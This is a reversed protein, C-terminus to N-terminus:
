PIKKGSFVNKTKGELDTGTQLFEIMQEIANMAPTGALAMVPDATIGAKMVATDFPITGILRTEIENAFSSVIKLEDDSSIRNGVIYVNLVGSGRAMQSIVRATDLSKANADSVVLLVDV